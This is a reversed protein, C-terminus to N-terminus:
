VLFPVALDGKLISRSRGIAVTGDTAEQAMSGVGRRGPGEQADAPGTVAGGFM